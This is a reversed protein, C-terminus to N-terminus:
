SWPTQPTPLEEGDVLTTVREDYFCIRDQLIGFGPEPSPYSWAADEVRVTGTNAHFHRAQGKYACRTVTSSPELHQTSVDVEPLYFRTPLGTEFLAVARRSEALCKGEAEIRIKRSTEHVDIRRYPDRPHVPQREDEVFWADVADWKLVAHDELAPASAPPELICKGATNSVQSGASLKVDEVTGLREHQSVTGTPQVQEGVDDVPIAYEPTPPRVWALLADVTDLIWEAQWRARVRKPFAEAVVTEGTFPGFGQDHALQGSKRHM